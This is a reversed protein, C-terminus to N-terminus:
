FQFFTKKAECLLGIEELIYCILSEELIYCILSEELIYCILSEELIYCILLEELIYCILSKFLYLFLCLTKWYDILPVYHFIYIYDIVTTKDGM